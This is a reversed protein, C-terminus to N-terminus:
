QDKSCFGSAMKLAKGFSVVKVTRELVDVDKDKEIPLTKQTSTEVIIDKIDSALACPALLKIKAGLNAVLPTAMSTGSMPGREGGPLLGNIDSGRVYVDVLDGFNSYDAISNHRKLAGVTLTNKFSLSAPYNGPIVKAAENGAAFLFLVNEGRDRIAPILNKEVTNEFPARAQEHLSSAEIGLSMNVIHAGEDISFDIATTLVEISKRALFLDRKLTSETQAFSFMDDGLEPMEEDSLPLARIPLLGLLPAISEKETKGPLLYRGGLLALSAVHTGHPNTGTIDVIEEGSEPDLIIPWPLYDSGLLDLGLGPATQNFRVHKQLRPHNYDVGSDIISVIVKHAQTQEQIKQEDLVSKPNAKAFLESDVDFKQSPAFVCSSCIFLLAIVSTSKM